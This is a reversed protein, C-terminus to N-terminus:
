SSWNVRTTSRRRSMAAPCACRTSPASWANPSNTFVIPWADKDPLSNRFVSGALEAAHARYNRGACFIGRLPKPFPATLSVASLPLRASIPNPLPEGAALMQVLPLAGRSADALALPTVESGDPSLLGAQPRGGWVWSALRM